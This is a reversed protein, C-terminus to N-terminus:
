QLEKLMWISCNHHGSNGLPKDLYKFNLREYLKIATSFVEQTEIYISHFGLEVSKAICNQILKKGIGLGRAEPKLYFKVLEVQYKKLGDTEFIGCLGLIEKSNSEAVLCFSNGKGQFLEFLENTTPDSYVTGTKPADLEIFCDKILRAM